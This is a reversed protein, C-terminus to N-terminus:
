LDVLGDPHLFGSASPHARSAACTVYTGLAMTANAGHKEDHCATCSSLSPTVRSVMWPKTCKALARLCSCMRSDMSGFCAHAGYIRHAM